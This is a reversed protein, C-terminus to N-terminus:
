LTEFGDSNREFAVSKKIATCGTGVNNHQHLRNSGLYAEFLMKSPAENEGERYM